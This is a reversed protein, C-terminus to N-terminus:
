FWVKCLYSSYGFPLLGFNLFLNLSWSSINAPFVGTDTVLCLSSAHGSFLMLGSTANVANERYIFRSVKEKAWFIPELTIKNAM